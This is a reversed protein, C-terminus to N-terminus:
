PKDGERRKLVTAGHVAEIMGEIRAVRRGMEVDAVCHSRFDEKFDRVDRTLSSAGARAGGWAVGGAAIIGAVSLIFAPDLTM